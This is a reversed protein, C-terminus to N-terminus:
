ITKLELIQKCKKMNSMKIKARFDTEMDKMSNMNNKPLFNKQTDIM